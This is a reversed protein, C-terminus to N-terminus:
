GTIAFSKIDLVKLADLYQELPVVGVCPFAGRQRLENRALAKTLLISPMCPIFVGDGSGAVIYFVDEKLQRDKGTGFLHMYFGSEKSGLWDFIHSLKLLFPAWTELGRIIGIRVLWSLVWLGFHIIPVELGAYFRVTQLDKYRQPFLSLDPIDCNGLWRRGLTPYVHNHLSQWGYVDQMKEAILTKFPKGAYSLIAATTAIGPSTQQATSIAYDIATIKEYQPLYHDIVASTLTSVSSAGSLVLVNRAKAKENLATIGCVFDRGDSLDIYHCGQVICAEAVEYGQGQFPGSTHIVIDPAIAKLAASFNKDIDLVHWRPPNPVNNYKDALKRCKDESRGAIVIKLDPECVLKKTIYSGFNGYAGIILVRKTM